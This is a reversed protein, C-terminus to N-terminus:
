LYRRLEQTRVTLDSLTNGILNIREADMTTDQYTHETSPSLASRAGHASRQHACALPHGAGLRTPEADGSDAMKEHIPM